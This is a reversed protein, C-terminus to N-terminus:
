KDGQIKYASRNSLRFSASIELFFSAFLRVFLSVCVIVAFNIARSPRKRAVNRPADISFLLKWCHIIKGPCYCVCVCMAWWSINCACPKWRTMYGRWFSDIIHGCIDIASKSTKQQEKTIHIFKISLITAQVSSLHLTRGNRTYCPLALLSQWKLIM